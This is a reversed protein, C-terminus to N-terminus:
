DLAYVGTRGRVMIKIELSSGAEKWAPEELFHDLERLQTRHLERVRCDHVGPEPAFGLSSSSGGSYPSGRALGPGSKGPQTALEARCPPGM